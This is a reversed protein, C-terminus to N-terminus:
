RTPGKRQSKKSRRTTKRSVKKRSGTRSAKKRVAQVIAKGKLPRRKLEPLLTQHFLARNLHRMYGAVEAETRPAAKQVRRGAKRVAKEVERVQALLLANAPRQENYANSPVAPLKITAM